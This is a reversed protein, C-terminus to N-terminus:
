TYNCVHQDVDPIGIIINTSTEEGKDVVSRRYIIIEVVVPRQKDDLM